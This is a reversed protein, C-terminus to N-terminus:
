SSLLFLFQARGNLICGLDLFKEPIALETQGLLLLRFGLRGM